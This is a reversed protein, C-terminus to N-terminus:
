KNELDWYQLKDAFINSHVSSNFKSVVYSYRCPTPCKSLNIGGGGVDKQQYSLSSYLVYQNRPFFEETCLTATVHNRSVSTRVEDDADEDDADDVVDGKKM